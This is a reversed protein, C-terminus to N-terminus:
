SDHVTHLTLWKDIRMIQTHDHQIHELVMAWSASNSLSDKQKSGLGLVHYATPECLQNTVIQEHTLWAVGLANLIGSLLSAFSIFNTKRKFCAIM